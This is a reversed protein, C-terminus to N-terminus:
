VHDSRPSRPGGVPCGSAPVPLFQAKKGRGGRNLPPVGTDASRSAGGGGGACPSPQKETKRPFRGAPGCRGRGARGDRFFSAGAPGPRASALVIGSPRPRPAGAPRPGPGPRPRPPTRGQRPGRRQGAPVVVRVHVEGVVVPRRVARLPRLRGAGWVHPRGRVHRVRWEALRVPVVEQSGGVLIIAPVVEPQILELAM